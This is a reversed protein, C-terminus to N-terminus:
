EEEDFTLKMLQGFVFILDSCLFDANELAYLWMETNNSIKEYDKLTKQSDQAIGYSFWILVLVDVIIRLLRYRVNFMNMILILVLCIGGFIMMFKSNNLDRTSMIGYIFNLVFIIGTIIVIQHIFLNYIGFYKLAGGIVATMGSLGWINIVTLIIMLPIEWLHKKKILSMLGIAILSTIGYKIALYKGEGDFLMSLKIANFATLYCKIGILLYIFCIFYTLTFYVTRKM